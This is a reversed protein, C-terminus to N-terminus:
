ENNEIRVLLAKFNNAQETIYSIFTMKAEDSSLYTSGAPFSRMLPHANSVNAINQKIPIGVFASVTGIFAVGYSLAELTKIKLGTGSNMPNIVIDVSAYFDDINDIKGIVDFPLLTPLKDCITGAIKFHYNKATECNLALESSFSKMSSVNFPNGSGLYGVVPVTTSAANEVFRPPTIHGITIVETHSDVLASRFYDAEEDQIAVVLDARTLGIYEQEVTTYFWEPELGIELFRLHRDGFVDHTDIIKYVTDPLSDLAASFWVYNVWVIDFNWQAHLKSVAAGLRYDYWDDVAYFPGLTKSTNPLDCPITHFHDWSASMVETQRRSLGELPYYMFHVVHGLLQFQRCIAAIRASNGQNQPHSAIPSIVLIRM